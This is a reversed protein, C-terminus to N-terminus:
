VGTVELGEFEVEGLFALQLGKALGEGAFAFEVDGLGALEAPLDVGWGGEEKEAVAGVSGEEPEVELFVGLFGEVGFVVAGLAIGLGHLEEELGLGGGDFGEFGGEGEFVGAGDVFGGALPAEFEVEFVAAGGEGDFVDVEVDFGGGAGEVEHFELEAVAGEEAGADGAGEFIWREWFVEEGGVGIRFGFLLKRRSESRWRRSWRVGLWCRM